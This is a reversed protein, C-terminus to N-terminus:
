WRDEKESRGVEYRDTPETGEDADEDETDLASIDRAHDTVAWLNGPMEYFYKRNRMESNITGEPIDLKEMITKRLQPGHKIIFQAIQRKRSVKPRVGSVPTGIELALAKFEELRAAKSRFENAQLRQKEAEQDAHEARDRLDVIQKDIDDISLTLRTAGM